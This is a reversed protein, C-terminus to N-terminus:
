AQRLDPQSWVLAAGSAPRPGGVQASLCWLDITAEKEEHMEWRRPRRQEGGNIDKFSVPFIPTGVDRM